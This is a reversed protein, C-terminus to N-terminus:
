LAYNVHLIIIKDGLMITVTKKFLHLGMGVLICYGMYLKQKILKETYITLMVYYTICLYLKSIM